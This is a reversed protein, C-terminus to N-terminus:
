IISAQDHYGANSQMPTLDAATPIAANIHRKILPSATPQTNKRAQAQKQRTEAAEIVNKLV